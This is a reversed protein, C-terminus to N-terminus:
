AWLLRLYQEVNIIDKNEDNIGTKYLM